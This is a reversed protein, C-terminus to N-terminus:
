VDGKRSAAGTVEQGTMELKVHLKSLIFLKKDRVDQMKSMNEENEWRM